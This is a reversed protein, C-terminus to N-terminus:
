EKEQTPSEQSPTPTPEEAPPDAIPAPDEDPPPNTRTQLALYGYYMTMLTM